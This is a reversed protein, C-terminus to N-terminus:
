QMSMTVCIEATRAASLRRSSSTNRSWTACQTSCAIAEPLWATDTDAGIFVFLAPTERRTTVGTEHNIVDIAELRDSGHVAAVESRLEVKINAKTELKEILYHSMSKALSDGRVLLTVSKAYNAFFVAAQGASNGAGVLYIDQGHTSSAESRAAGYYVGRGTLRETSEVALRRYIVGLALVVTRAHLVDGGDLTVRLPDVDIAQVYRTVVM